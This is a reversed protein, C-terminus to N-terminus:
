SLFRVVEYPCAVIQRAIELPLDAGEDLMVIMDAIMLADVIQGRSVDVEAPGLRNECFSVADLAVRDCVTAQLM